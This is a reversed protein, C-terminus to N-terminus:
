CINILIFLSLLLLDREQMYDVVINIIKKITESCNKFFIKDLVEIGYNRILDSILAHIFSQTAADVGKFDLIVKGNKELYPAVEKTRIDRARDKNEAFNGTIPYLKITKM